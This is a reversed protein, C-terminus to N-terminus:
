ISIQKRPKLLNRMPVEVFRYTFSATLLVIPIFLGLAILSRDGNLDSGFVLNFKYLWFTKLLEALCWHVMYISYSITGLYLLIPSNMIKSILGNNKDTMALILLSFAPLISWDHIARFYDNWNHMVCAIWGISFIALLNFRLHQRQSRKEALDDNNKPVAERESFQYIKYTIIGLVCELGCRAISPIGVITSLTGRTFKILLFISILTIIYVIADTKPKTKLLAFLIFPFLCYIVFEVSISWAPENWFTNCWLLPLCTLDFAQLLFINAFLSTLTFQGTFATNNPLFARIVELCVLVSLTFLHLPYIRAFRASLYKWYNSKSVGLCFRDWYVHTMIFGSLVFFLDVCLYGNKFFGSYSSLVVGAPPLTYYAFHFVVVILAAIGRLSTLAGIQKNM